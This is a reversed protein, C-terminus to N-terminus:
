SSGFFSLRIYMIGRFIDGNVALNLCFPLRRWKAAAALMSHEAISVGMSKMRTTPLAV